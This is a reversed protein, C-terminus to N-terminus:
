DLKGLSNYTGYKFCESFLALLRPHIAHKQLAHLGEPIMLCTHLKTSLFVDFLVSGTLNLM